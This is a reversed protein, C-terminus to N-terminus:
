GNSRINLIVALKIAVRAIFQYVKLAKSLHLNHACHIHTLMKTEIHNPDFVFAFMSQPGDNLIEEYLFVRDIRNECSIQVNGLLEKWLEHM